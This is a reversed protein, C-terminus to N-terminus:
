QSSVSQLEVNTTTGNFEAIGETTPLAFGTTREAEFQTSLRSPWTSDPISTFTKQEIPVLEDNSIPKPTLSLKELMLRFPRTQTPAPPPYFIIAEGVELSRLQELLHRFLSPNFDLFVHGEDDMSLEKDSQNLLMQGLHSDAVHLISARSIFMMEGGVNFEILDSNEVFKEVLNKENDVDETVELILPESTTLGHDNATVFFHWRRHNGVILLL